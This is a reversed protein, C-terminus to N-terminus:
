QIIFKSFYVNKMKGSKLLAAVKDMIEDRLRPRLDVNVLEPLGKSTLISNLVDRLQVDKKELEQRAEATTVEFGITTLLFRTGNTGAPNVILDKVVYLQETEPEASQQEAAKVPAATAASASPSGMLKGAIFYIAAFQAIFVPIGIVILKKLPIGAAPASAPQSPAAPAPTDKAM